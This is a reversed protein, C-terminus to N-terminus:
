RYIYRILKKFKTEVLSLAKEKNVFKVKKIEKKDRKEKKLGKYEETTLKIVFVNMRKVIGNKKYSYNFQFEPDQVGIDIGTEERLEMYANFFANNNYKPDIHGKPISYKNEGKFKKPLVICIKNDVLLAIGSLNQTEKKFSNYELLLYSM